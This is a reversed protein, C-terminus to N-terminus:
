YALWRWRLSRWDHHIRRLKGNLSFYLELFCVWFGTKMHLCFSHTSFINLIFKVGLFCAVADYYTENSVMDSCHNEYWNKSYRMKLSHNLSLEIEEFILYKIPFVSLIWLIKTCILALMFPKLDFTNELSYLKPSLWTQKTSLNWYYYFYIKRITFLIFFIRVILVIIRINKDSYLFKNAWHYHEFKLMEEKM